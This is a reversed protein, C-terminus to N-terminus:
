TTFVDNDCGQSHNLAVQHSIGENQARTLVM